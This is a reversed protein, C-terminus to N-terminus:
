LVGGQKWQRLLQRASVSSSNGKGLLKDYLHIAEQLLSLSEELDLDHAVIASGYLIAAYDLTKGFFRLTVSAAKKYADWAEQLRGQRYRIAALSSYAASQHPDLAGSPGDYYEMAREIWREADEIRKQRLCIAALNNLSSAIEAETGPMDEMLRLAKHTYEEAAEFDDLQQYCLALNNWASARVYNTDGAQESLLRLVHHFDRVAEQLQGSLRYTGARNLLSTLYPTSSGLGLDELMEMAFEFQDISEAYRTQGRYLGGLENAATIMGMDDEADRCSDLTDLLFAEVDQPKTEYLRDLQNFFDARM